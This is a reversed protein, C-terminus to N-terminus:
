GPELALGGAQGRRHLADLAACTVAPRRGGRGSRDSKAIARDVAARTQGPACHYRVQAVSRRGVAYRWARMLAQLRRPAKPTLEVEFALTGGDALVALDARHMKPAGNPLTGVETSAIAREELQELRDLAERVGYTRGLRTGARSLRGL